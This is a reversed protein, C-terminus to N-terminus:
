VVNSICSLSVATYFENGPKIDTIFWIHKEAYDQFAVHDSAVRVMWFYIKWKSILDHLTTSARLKLKLIVSSHHNISRVQERNGKYLWLADVRFRWIVKKKHIESSQHWKFCRPIDGVSTEQQLGWDSMKEQQFLCRSQKWLKAKGMWKDVNNQKLLLCITERTTMSAWNNRVDWRNRQLVLKLRLCTPPAM